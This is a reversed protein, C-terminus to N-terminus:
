GSLLPIKFLEHPMQMESRLITAWPVQPDVPCHRNPRRTSNPELGLWESCVHLVRATRGTFFTIRCIVSIYIYIKSRRKISSLDTSRICKAKLSPVCFDDYIQIFVQRNFIGIGLSPHWTMHQWIQWNSPHFCPQRVCCSNKHTEWATCTNM